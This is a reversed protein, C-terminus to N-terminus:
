ASVETTERLEKLRRLFVEHMAAQYSDYSDGELAVPASKDQRSIRGVRWARDREVAIVVYKGEVPARRMPTLVRALDDSHPGLPRAAHEAVLADTVLGLTHRRLAREFRDRAIEARDIRRDPV